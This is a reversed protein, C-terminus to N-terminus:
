AVGGFPFGAGALGAVALGPAFFATALLLPAFFFDTLFYRLEHETLSTERNKSREVHCLSRGVLNM